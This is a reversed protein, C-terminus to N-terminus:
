SAEIRVGIQVAVFMSSLPEAQCRIHDIFYLSTSHLGGYELYIQSGLYVLKGKLREL